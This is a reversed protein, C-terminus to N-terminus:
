ISDLNARMQDVPLGRLGDNAGLELVLVDIPQQLSWDLRRLGGASTEGSLGANVVRFPMGASDLKQQILTPFANNVGVGYGATLSTGLFFIVGRQDRQVVPAAAQQTRAPQEDARACGLMALAALLAIKRKIGGSMM